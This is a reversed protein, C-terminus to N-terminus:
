NNNKNIKKHEAIAMLAIVFCIFAIWIQHYKGAVVASLAIIGLLTFGYFIAKNM